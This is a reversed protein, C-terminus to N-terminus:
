STRQWRRLHFGSGPAQSVTSSVAPQIRIVPLVHLSQDRHTHRQRERHVPRRPSHPGFRWRSLTGSANTTFSNVSNKANDSFGFWAVAHGTFGAATAAGVITGTEWVDGANNVTMHLVGNGSIVLDGPVCGAPGVDIPAGNLHITQTTAAEAM